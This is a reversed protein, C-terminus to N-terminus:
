QLLPTAAALALGLLRERESTHQLRGDEVHLTRSAVLHPRSVDEGRHQLLRLCERSLQQRRLADRTQVDQIEDRVADGLHRGLAVRWVRLGSWPAPGVIVFLRRRGGLIGQAGVCDIEAFARGRAMEIREDSTLGLQLPGDLDEAAPPLVIRHEYALRAHALRRKGFPQCEPQEFRFHRRWEFTGLDKREIAGGQQSTRAETAVELLAEFSDDSRQRLTVPRDEEDVLNVRGYAGPRRGAARHVEGREDLRHENCAVEAHNARRREFLELVNLLVPRQRPAELFHRDLLRGDFLGRADELSELFPVFVVVLHVVRVRGDVCRRPQRRPM